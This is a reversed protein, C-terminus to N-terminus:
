PKAAAPPDGWLLGLDLPVADFPPARVTVQGTFVGLFLYGEPERRHVELTRALPDILWLWPVGHAAYLPMKKYRDLRATGPSLIECVWDPPLEIAASKPIAPMRERRWGALDPVLITERDDFHLEPEDLIFWGGPGSRGFWFADVLLAGLAASCIGHPTAPRPSLFLEGDILEAVKEEPADL